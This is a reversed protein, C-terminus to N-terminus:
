WKYIMNRSFVMPTGCRKSEKQINLRPFGDDHRWHDAGLDWSRSRQRPVAADALIAEDAAADGQVQHGCCVLLQFCWGSTRHHSNRLRTFCFEKISHIQPADIIHGNWTLNAIDACM